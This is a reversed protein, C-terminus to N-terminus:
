DDGSRRRGIAARLVRLYDDRTQEQKRVTNAGHIRRRLVVTDLAVSRLGAAEARAVWDLTEGVRFGADFPGVQGFAAQRVLMAGALRGARVAAPVALTARLAEPLDPSLFAEVGGYCYALGADAALVARRAELSGPPWEDDADLFALLEGGALAVGRNRAASIGANGQQVCRLAAGYGAAVAASDDTSGDDIVILEDGPRLQGLVSDIAAGLWRAANHCPIVVSVRGAAASM